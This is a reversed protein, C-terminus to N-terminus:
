SPATEGVVLAIIGVGGGGSASEEREIKLSEELFRKGALPLDAEPLHVHRTQHELEDRFFRKVESWRRKRDKETLWLQNV